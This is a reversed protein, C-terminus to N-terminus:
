ECALTTGDFFRVALRLIFAYITCLVSQSALASTGSLDCVSVDDDSSDGHDAADSGLFFSLAATVM